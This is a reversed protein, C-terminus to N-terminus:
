ASSPPRLSARARARAAILRRSLPEAPRIPRSSHAHRMTLGSARGACATAREGEQALLYNLAPRARARAEREGTGSLLPTLKGACLTVPLM